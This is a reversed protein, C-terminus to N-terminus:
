RLEEPTPYMLADARQGALSVGRLEPADIGHWVPTKLFAEETGDEIVWKRVERGVVKSVELPWSILDRVSEGLGADIDMLWEGACLIRMGVVDRRRKESEYRGGFVPSLLLEMGLFYAMVVRCAMNDRDVLRPFEGGDCEFWVSYVACFRIYGERLGMECGLMADEVARMFKWEVGEGMVGERENEEM